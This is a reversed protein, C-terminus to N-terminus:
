TGSIITGTAEESLIGTDKGFLSTTAKTTFGHTKIAATLAEVRKTLM